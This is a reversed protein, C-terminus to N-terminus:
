VAQQLHRIRAIEAGKHNQEKLTWYRTYELDDWTFGTKRQVEVRLGFTYHFAIEFANISMTPEVSMLRLGSLFPNLRLIPLAQGTAALLRGAPDFVQLRLFPYHRQFNRNIQDVTLLSNIVFPKM